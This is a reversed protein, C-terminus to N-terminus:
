RRSAATAVCPAMPSIWSRPVRHKSEEALSRGAAVRAVMRAADRLAQALPANGRM